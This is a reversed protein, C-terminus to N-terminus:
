RWGKKIPNNRYPPAQEPCAQPLLAGVTTRAALIRSDAAGYYLLIGDGADLIERDTEPVAGCTFVVNPVWGTEGGQEAPTEPELVPFPSRYLLRGPDNLDLLLVGLRYVRAEDVGHYFLLWGFRTKLPPAGAGIKKGDWHSFRPHLLATPQMKCPFRLEKLRHIWISPELRHYLVYAGNLREPFLVADKDWVGEFVLGERRWAFNERRFDALALSAAAIQALHGDYATYFMWIRGGAVTLRPDECGMSEAPGSPELVPEPWRRLVRLGDTEALGIRSIGDQGVARYFLYVRNQLRLAGPNLVYRCEWAHEPVPELLVGLRAFPASQWCRLLGGPTFTSGATLRIKAAQFRAAAATFLAEAETQDAVAVLLNDQRLARTSAARIGFGTETIQAALIFHRGPFESLITDVVALADQDSLCWVADYRNDGWFRALLAATERQEM